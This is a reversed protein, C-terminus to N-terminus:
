EGVLEPDMTLIVHSKDKAYEMFIEKGSPTRFTIKDCLYFHWIIKKQKEM